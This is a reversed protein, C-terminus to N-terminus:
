LREGSDFKKQYEAILEEPTTGTPRWFQVPGLMHLLEHHWCMPVAQRDPVKARPGLHAAETKTKQEWGHRECVWCPQARIFALYEKDRGTKKRTASRM